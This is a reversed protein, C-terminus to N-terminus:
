QHYSPAYGEKPDKQESKLRNYLEKTKTDSKRHMWLNMIITDFEEFSKCSFFNSYNINEKISISKTFGYNHGPYIITDYSLKFIKQSPILGGEPSPRRM